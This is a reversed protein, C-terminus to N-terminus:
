QNGVSLNQLWSKDLVGNQKLFNEFETEGQAQNTADLSLLFSDDAFNYSLSFDTGQYPLKEILASVTATDPPYDTPIALPFSNFVANNTTSSNASSTPSPATLIVVKKSPLAIIAIVIFIVALIFLLVILLYTKKM